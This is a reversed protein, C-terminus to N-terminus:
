KLLDRVIMPHVLGSYQSAMGEAVHEGSQAGMADPQPSERGEIVVRGGLNSAMNLLHDMGLIWGGCPPSDYGPLRAELNEPIARTSRHKEQELVLEAIGIMQVRTLFGGQPGEGSAILELAKRMRDTM